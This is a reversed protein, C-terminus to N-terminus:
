LKYGFNEIGQNFLEEKACGIAKLHAWIVNELSSDLDLKRKLQVFYHKFDERVEEERKELKPTTIQNEMQEVKKGNKNSM